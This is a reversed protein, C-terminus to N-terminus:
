KFYQTSHLFVYQKQVIKETKPQHPQLNRYKVADFPQKLMQTLEAEASAFRDMLYNVDVTNSKVAEPLEFLSTTKQDLAFLKM